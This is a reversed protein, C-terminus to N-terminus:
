EPGYSSPQRLRQEHPPLEDRQLVLDYPKQCKFRGETPWWCAVTRGRCVYKVLPGNETALRVKLVSPQWLRPAVGSERLARYPRRGLRAVWRWIPQRAHLICARLLGVWGSQVPYTKGDHEVHTVRGVLSDATVLTTDASPNNDGRAVLGAPALAVIRHVLEEADEPERHHNAGRYVVVDGPRVDALPVPAVRLCDGPCFTGKMSQGRFFRVRDDGPM